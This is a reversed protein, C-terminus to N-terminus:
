DDAGVRMEKIRNIIKDKSYRITGESVGLIKALDVNSNIQPRDNIGFLYEYVLKEKPDDIRKYITDVLEKEDWDSKAGVSSIEEPQMNGATRKSTENFLKEADSLRIKMKDAIEVPTPNRGMEDFFEKKKNLFKGYMSARSDPIYFINGKNTERYLSKLNQDLHTAFSGKEPNYGSLTNAIISKAQMEVIDDPLDNQSYEVVKSRIKPNYQTYIEGLLNKDKENIRRFIDQDTLM